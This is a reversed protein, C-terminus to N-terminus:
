VPKPWDPTVELFDQLRESIELVKEEDGLEGYWEMLQAWVTVLKSSKSVVTDSNWADQIIAPAAEKWKSKTEDAQRFSWEQFLQNAVKEAREIAVKLEGNLYALIAHSMFLELRQSRIQEALEPLERCYDHLIDLCRLLRREASVLDRIQLAQRIRILEAKIFSQPDATVGALSAEVWPDTGASVGKQGTGEPASQAHPSAQGPATAVVDEFLVQALTHQQTLTASKMVTIAREIATKASGAQGHELLYRSKRMFFESIDRLRSFERGMTLAQSLIERAEAPRRLTLFLESLRLRLEFLGGILETDGPSRAALDDGIQVANKWDRMAGLANNMAYELYGSEKGVRFLLALDLTRHAYVRIEELLPIAESERSLLRYSMATLLNYQQRATGQLSSASIKELASLATLASQPRHLLLDYEAQRLYTEFTFQEDLNNLFYEVPLDLRNALASILQASPKARDAEIQSIMSPTVLDQGLQAQTMGRLLRSERIKQGLTPSHATVMIM